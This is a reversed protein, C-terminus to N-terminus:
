RVDFWAQSDWGCEDGCRTRDPIRGFAVALVISTCIRHGSDLDYVWHHRLSTKRGTEVEAGFSQIRTGKPPLMEVLGRSELTAWGFRTGDDLTRGPGRDGRGIPTGGWQLNQYQGPRLIGEADCEEPLIERPERM